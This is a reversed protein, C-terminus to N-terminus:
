ICLSAPDQLYRRFFSTLDSAEYTPDVDSRIVIREGRALMRFYWSNILVDAFAVAPGGLEDDPDKADPDSLIRSISWFCVGHTDMEHDPMGNALEFYRRADASLQFGAFTELALFEAGTAGPNVERGEDRWRRIVELIPDRM